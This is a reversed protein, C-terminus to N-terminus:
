KVREWVQSRGFVSVGIYGRVELNAGNKILKFTCRYTKGNKPDLIHGGDWKDGNLKMGELIVMGVIKQNHKDGKCAECVKNQDEGPKPFIQVVKGSLTQDSTAYIQIISKAQGTVDDITKWYGIPSSTTLAYINTMCGVFIVMVFLRFIKNFM